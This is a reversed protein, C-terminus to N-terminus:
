RDQPEGVLKALEAKVADVQSRVVDEPHDHLALWHRLARIAGERDGTTAALRAEERLSPGIFLGWSLHHIRRRVAALAGTFDGHREFARAAILNAHLVEGNTIEGRRMLSDLL